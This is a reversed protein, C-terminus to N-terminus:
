IYELRQFFPKFLTPQLQMRLFGPNDVAFISSSLILIWALRKGMNNLYSNVCGSKELKKM